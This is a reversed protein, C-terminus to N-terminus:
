AVAAKRAYINIMMGLRLADVLKMSAKSALRIIPLLVAALGPLRRVVADMPIRSVWEVKEVVFGQSRLLKSLSNASFYNLHEPPTIYPDKEQLLRRFVSGFNPLAIALVGNSTLLVNAKHVWAEIDHAHELIQSMVIASMSGPPAAYEEFMCASPTLGTMEHAIARENEALELARVDFGANLAERSFFGYGCGVDLFTKGAASGLMSRVTAVIRRADITSNPDRRETAIVSELDRNVHGTGSRGLGVKSYYEALFAMSPRPNVFAFGCSVCRDITYLHGGAQKSRWAVVPSACVPCRSYREGVMLTM